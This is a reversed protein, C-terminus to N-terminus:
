QSMIKHVVVTNTWPSPDEGTRQAWIMAARYFSALRAELHEPDNAESASVVAWVDAPHAGDVNRLVKIADEPVAVHGNKVNFAKRLIEPVTLGAESAQAAQLPTRQVLYKTLARHHGNKVRERVWAVTWSGSPEQAM